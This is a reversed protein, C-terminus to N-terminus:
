LDLTWYWVFPLGGFFTGFFATILVGTLVFKVGFELASFFGDNYTWVTKWLMISVAVILAMVLLLGITGLISLFVM